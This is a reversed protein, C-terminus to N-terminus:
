LNHSLSYVYATLLHIKDESLLEKHIPMRGNRGNRISHSIQGLSGGYLWIDNTLDPAGFAINGAGKAGHCASCFMQFKVKGAGDSVVAGSLSKVYQSVEMVGDETLPALWGPMSGSRGQVISEKIQDPSNGYLWEGDTLNPFGNGGRADGGHCQACNNSFMRQGMKLAKTNKSVEEIPMARYQAFIEGYKKEARDVEAQWQNVQTWNLLGKYNGMGPYFILYGIGFVITIVFMNFWWAPLPNDYEEIGDYIHGTTKDPGSGTSKRNAFLIWTIGVISIVTLVIIWLSWFNSM